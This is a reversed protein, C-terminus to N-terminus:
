DTKGTTVETLLILVSNDRFLSELQLCRQGIHARAPAEIEMPQNEVLPGSVYGAALPLVTGSVYGAALPLVTESACM